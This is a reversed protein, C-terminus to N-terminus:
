LTVICYIKKNIYLKTYIVSHNNILYLNLSCIRSLYEGKRINIWVSFNLIAYRATAHEGRQVAQPNTGPVRCAWRTTQKNSTEAPLRSFRTSSPFGITLGLRTADLWRACLILDDTNNVILFRKISKISSASSHTYCYCCCCCPLSAFLLGTLFLLINIGTTGIEVYRVWAGRRNTSEIFRWRSPNVTSYSKATRRNECLTM